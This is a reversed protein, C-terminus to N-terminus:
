VLLQRCQSYGEVGTQMSVTILLFIVKKIILNENFEIEEEEYIECLDKLFELRYQLPLLLNVLCVRSSNDQQKVLLNINEIEFEYFYSDRLEKLLELLGVLM